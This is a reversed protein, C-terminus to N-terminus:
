MKVKTFDWRMTKYGNHISRYWTLNLAAMGVAVLMWQNIWLKIEDHNPRFSFAMFESVDKCMQSVTAPTGDEYEIQYDETIPPPMSIAGGEFYTNYYLGARLHVGYPPDRYGLLIAMIYDVGAHKQGSFFSFDPPYAGGNSFRAAEENPYPSPFKDGPKGPRQFMEGQQNPGDTIDYQSALQKVRGEPYVQNSLSKFMFYKMSHCTACVQTYVEYGRRVSAVDYSGFMGKMHRPYYPAHCPDKESCDAFQRTRPESPTNTNANAAINSKRNLLGGLAARNLIESLVM